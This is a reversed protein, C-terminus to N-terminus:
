GATQGGDVPICMGTVFSSADSLLWGIASALENPHAWRGLFLQASVIAEIGPNADVSGQSMPTLTPGPLVANVRIGRKGYEQAASRVLGLVGAKSAAYESHLPQAKIGVTSSVVVISGGQAALMAPIEYKLCLFAATLNTHVVREWQELTLEHLMKSHSPVGACNAAADLKGYRSVATHVMAKVHDEERINTHTFQADGGAKKLMSVTEAANDANLDAVTVNAGANGFLLAAARGIGSGGGTVIVSKDKLDLMRKGRGVPELVTASNISWITLKHRAELPHLLRPTAPM